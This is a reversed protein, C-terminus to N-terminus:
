HSTWWYSIKLIQYLLINQKARPNAGLYTVESVAVLYSGVTDSVGRWKGGAGGQM